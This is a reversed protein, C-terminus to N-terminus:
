DARGIRPPSCPTSRTASGPSIRSPRSRRGRPRSSLGLAPAPGRADARAPGQRRPRDLGAPRRGGGPEPARGRERAADPGDRDAATVREILLSEGSRGPEVAPGSDGGRRILDATDLRLGAKQRISGHCSTCRAALIPKVDRVYDVESGGGAVIALLITTIM